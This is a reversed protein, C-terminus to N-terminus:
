PQPEAHVVPLYIIAEVSLGPMGPIIVPGFRVGQMCMLSMGTGLNSNQMDLFIRLRSIFTKLLMLLFMVIAFVSVSVSATIDGSHEHLPEVRYLIQASFRRGAPM